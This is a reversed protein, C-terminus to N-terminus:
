LLAKNGGFVRSHFRGLFLRRPDHRTDAGFVELVAPASDGGTSHMGFVALANDTIQILKATVAAYHVDLFELTPVDRSPNIAFGRPLRWHRPPVDNRNNKSGEVMGGVLMAYAIWEASKLLRRRPRSQLRKRSLVFLQQVVRRILRKPTKEKRRDM